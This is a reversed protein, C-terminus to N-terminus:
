EAPWRLFFIPSTKSFICTFPGSPYFYALDFLDINKVLQLPTFKFVNIWNDILLLRYKYVTTKNSNLQKVNNIFHKINIYHTKGQYSRCPQSPM